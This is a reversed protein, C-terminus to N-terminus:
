FIILGLCLAFSVFVVASLLDILATFGVVGSVWHISGHTLLGSSLTNRSIIPRYHFFNACSFVLEQILDTGVVVGEVNAAGCEPDLM